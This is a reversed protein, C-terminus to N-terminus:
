LIIALFKAPKGDLAEMAHGYNSDFFLSDGENLIIENNHIYVKLRGQLVYNFEQGPHHNISPSTNGPKPDVTVIFPEAKKHIMNSALNQYDYQERRQVSVGKDKRTVTFIHMKPDEGTLLVSMDVNLKQSIELLMSAPIDENGNEIDIYTQLPIDLFEAMEEISINSLKRLEQIRLSIEQLKEKKM